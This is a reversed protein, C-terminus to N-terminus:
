RHSPRFREMAAVTRRDQPDDRQELHQMAREATEPGLNQGLKFKATVTDMSLAFVATNRIGAQYRPSDPTVPEFGGAPQLKEMLAQLSRAKEAPDAVIRIRGKVVVSKFLQTASCANESDFFTSPLLAHPDVGLFSAPAGEALVTMKEGTPAGHFYLRGDMRVFNLPVQLPTGQPTVLALTGWELSDLVDNVETPDNIMFEQRRM